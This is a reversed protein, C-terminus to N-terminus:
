PTMAARDALGSARQSLVCWRATFTMTVFTTPGLAGINMRPAGIRSMTGITWSTPLM